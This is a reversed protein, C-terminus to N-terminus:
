GLEFILILRELFLIFVSDYMLQGLDLAFWFRPFFPMGLCLVVVFAMSFCSRLHTRSFVTLSPPIKWYSFEWM